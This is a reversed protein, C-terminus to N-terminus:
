EMVFHDREGRFDNHKIDKGSMPFYQYQAKDCRKM